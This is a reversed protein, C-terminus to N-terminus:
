PLVEFGTVYYGTVDDTMTRARDIRISAPFGYAPDYSVELKYVGQTIADSVTTFLSEVTGHKRFTDQYPTIDGGNSATMSIIEGDRVEVKVPMMGAWPCNCGIKLDFRYHRIGQSVWLARNAENAEREPSTCASLCVALLVLLLLGKRKM